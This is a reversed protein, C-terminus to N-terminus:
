KGKPPKKSPLCDTSYHDGPQAGLGISAPALDCACGAPCCGPNDQQWTKGDSRLTWQCSAGNCIVPVPAAEAGRVAKQRCLATFIDGPKGVSNKPTPPCSCGHSCARYVRRWRGKPFLKSRPQKVFICKGSCHAQAM